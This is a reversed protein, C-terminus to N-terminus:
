KRKIMKGTEIGEKTEIKYIYTGSPYDNGDINFNHEGAPLHGDHITYIKSGSANMVTVKANGAKEMDFSITTSNTFPNPSAPRAPMVNMNLGMISEDFSEAGNYLFVRAMAERGMNMREGHGKGFGHGEGNFNGKAKRGEGKGLGHKGGKRGKRDGKMEELEEEYKDAWEKHIDKIDTHWEEHKETVEGKLEDVLDPYNDIVEKLDEGMERRFEMMEKRHEMIEEKSPKEGAERKERMKQFNEEKHEAAKERLENLTQLDISSLESDIKSKWEDLQPIINANKYNEISEKLEQFIESNAFIKIGVLILSSVVAFAVLKKLMKFESFYTQLVKKAEKVM